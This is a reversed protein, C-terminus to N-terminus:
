PTSGEAREARAQERERAAERDEIRQEEPTLSRRRRVVFEVRRNGQHEAESLGRYRPQQHGFGVADILEGDIGLTVLMNRVRQSRMESLRQNGSVTGRVDAHGEIRLQEWEPHQAQMTVIARLIGIAERRLRARSFDFLVREDIVIRDDIMEILGVDPCGDRDAVGNYVEPENPCADDVDLIGDADNDPDPCGDGDEFGDVDEPQLPCSDDVDLIGDADNDPDPCGDEDQFTDIDEPEDICADVDDYIGDGDRDGIPTPEVAVTDPTSTRADLFTLEVGLLLIHAPRDELQDDVEFVSTWRAVPALDFDGIAFGYGLGVEASPRIRDGTLSGGGGLEVFFGTGREAGPSLPSFPRLRLSAHLSHLTGVGPDALGAELPAPGDTLLGFRYRAGLLFADSLAAHFGVSAGFGPGFRDATPELLPMAFDGEVHLLWADQAAGTTPLAGSVLVLFPLLAAPRDPRM